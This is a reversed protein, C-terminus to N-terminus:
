IVSRTYLIGKKGMLIDTKNSRYDKAPLVSRVGTENESVAQTVKFLDNVM